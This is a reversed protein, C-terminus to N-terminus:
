CKRFGLAELAAIFRDHDSIRFFLRSVWNKWRTITADPGPHLAHNETSM